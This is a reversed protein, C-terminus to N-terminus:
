QEKIPRAIGTTISIPGIIIRLATMCSRKAKLEVLCVSFGHHVKKGSGTEDFWSLSKAWSLQFVFRKINFIM